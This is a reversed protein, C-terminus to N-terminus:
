HPLAQSTVPRTKRDPQQSLFVGAFVVACALYQQVSLREDLILIGLIVAVAPILNIFVAAQGAPVKSVGYNYFGFAGLTIASGLYVIALTPVAEISAPIATSPFFLAPFFFLTGSFAQLASLFFPSYGRNTLQKLCIVYGATCAMAIFELFNGLPPNPAQKTVEAGLSLWVAGAVSILLGAVSKQTMREKLIFFAAPAIMLPLLATIMGTQSATSYMLAKAEFIFYLCPECVVMVIVLGMDARRISMPGLYRALCVFCLSGTLMRFFMVVMPHYYQFALKMVPFSSGWLLTAMFLSIYPAMSRRETPNMDTENIFVENSNKPFGFAAFTSPRNM